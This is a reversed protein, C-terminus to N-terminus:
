HLNEVLEKPKEARVLVLAPPDQATRQLNKAM